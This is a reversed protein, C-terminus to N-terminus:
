GRPRRQQSPGRNQGRLLKRFACAAFLEKIGAAALWFQLRQKISPMWHKIRTFFVTPLQYRARLFFRMTFTIEHKNSYLLVAAKLSDAAAAGLVRKGAISQRAAVGFTQGQFGHYRLVALRGSVSLTHPCLCDSRPKFLTSPILFTFPFLPGSFVLQWSLVYHSQKLALAQAILISGRRSVHPQVNVDKDGGADVHKDGGSDSDPRPRRWQGQTLLPGSVSGESAASKIAPAPAVPSLAVNAAAPQSRPLEKFAPSSPPSSQVSASCLRERQIRPIYPPVPTWKQKEAVPLDKREYPGSLPSM